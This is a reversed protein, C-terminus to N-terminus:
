PMLKLMVPQIANLNNRGSGVIKGQPSVIVAGIPFTGESKAKEAEDFAALLFNYDDMVEGWKEFNEYERVSNKSSSILRNM